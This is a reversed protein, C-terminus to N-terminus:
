RSVLVFTGTFNVTVSVTRGDDRVGSKVRRGDSPDDPHLASSDGAFRARPLMLWGGAGGNASPDWYLVDYGRGRASEPLLFTITITGDENVTIAVQDPDLLGVMLAALFDSGAGLTAPLDAENLGSLTTSGDFPCDFQV